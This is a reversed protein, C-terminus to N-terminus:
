NHSAFALFYPNSELNQMEKEELVLWAEIGDGSNSHCYDTLVFFNRFQPPQIGDTPVIWVPKGFGFDVENLGMKCWSSVRLIGDELQISHQLEAEATKRQFNISTIKQYTNSLASHIEKVLEQLESNSSKNAELVHKRVQTQAITIPNGMSEKPLPPNMRPRMNVVISLATHEVQMGLNLRTALTQEWVFGAVAEFGTPKPILDSTAKAKLKSIAIPDFLFSKIVNNSVPPPELSSIPSSKSEPKPLPPFANITAAFNPQVLDNLRKSALNSWYKLFTGLSAIDLIKHLMYCGIIVGGCLFVNIQFALPVLESISQLEPPPLFKTLLKLKHPSTLAVSLNCNVNTEIFPIGEHNCSITSEDLLRGALPFFQDLTQSLSTKLGSINVGGQPTPSEATFFLLIPVQITPFTQDILSLTFTTPHSSPPFSPKVMEKSLIKVEVEFEQEM